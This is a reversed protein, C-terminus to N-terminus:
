SQYILEAKIESPKRIQTLLWEAEVEYLAVSAGTKELWWMIKSLKSNNVESTHVIEIFYVACGKSFVTIDPVFLREGFYTSLDFCEGFEGVFGPEILGKSAEFYYADSTDYFPLEMHVGYNGTRWNFPQMLNKACTNDEYECLWKHLLEKALKHKYSEKPEFKPKMM